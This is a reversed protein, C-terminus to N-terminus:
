APAEGSVSGAAPAVAPGGAPPQAALLRRLEVLCGAREAELGELLGGWPEPKAPGALARGHKGAWRLIAARLVRLDSVRGLAQQVSKLWLSTAADAGPAVAELRESAYRWRKVAVRAAHLAEDSGLASAERLAGAALARRLGVRDCAHLFWSPGPDWGSGRAPWLHEYTARMREIRRRACLGTSRRTLKELRQRAHLAIALAVGRGAPSRSETRQDLLDVIMRAEGAPGLARRLEGMARAVRRRRRRPLLTRWLDLAAELQRLAVRVDHAAAPDSCRRLHRAAEVLRALRRGRDRALLVALGESGSRNM